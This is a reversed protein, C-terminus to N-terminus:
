GRLAGALLLALREPGGILGIPLSHDFQREAKHPGRINRELSVEIGSPRQDPGLSDVEAKLKGFLAANETLIDPFEPTGMAEKTNALLAEKACQIVMVQLFVTSVDPSTSVELEM